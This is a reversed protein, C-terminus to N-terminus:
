LQVTMRGSPGKVELILRSESGRREVGGSLVFVHDGLSQRSYIDTIHPDKKHRRRYSREAAALKKILTKLKM